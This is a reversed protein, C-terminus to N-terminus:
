PTIRHRVLVDDAFWGDEPGELTLLVMEAGGGTLEREPVEVVPEAVLDHAARVLVEALSSLSGAGRWLGDFDDWVMSGPAVTRLTARATVVSAVRTTPARTVAVVRRSSIVAPKVAPDTAWIVDGVALEGAPRAGDPTAVLSDTGVGLVLIAEMQEEKRAGARVVTDRAYGM